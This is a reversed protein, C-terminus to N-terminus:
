FQFRFPHSHNAIEIRISSLLRSAWVGVLVGLAGGLFALLVSETLLQRVIRTRAAGLATRIAMERERATARVLVINAVNSCALLLVLGALVMFLVGVIVIGNAPDPDPRALRKRICRYSVSKHSEPFQQNLRQAVINASVEAQKRTM